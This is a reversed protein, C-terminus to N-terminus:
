HGARCERRKFLMLAITIVCAAASAGFSAALLTDRAVCAGYATGLLTRSRMTASGPGM